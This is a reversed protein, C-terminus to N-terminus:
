DKTYIKKELYYCFYECALNSSSGAFWNMIYLPRAFPDPSKNM